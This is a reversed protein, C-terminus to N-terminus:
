ITTPVIVLKLINISIPLEKKFKKAKRKFQKTESLAAIELLM